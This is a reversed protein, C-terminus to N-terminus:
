QPTLGVHGMVPIDAMVIKEIAEVYPGELKVAEAGAEKVLRGASILAQEPSVQYSMFPLDAVVLAHSVAPVVCSCHYVMTDLTVSLTNAKGQCVTGLSDGVLIIDLEARDVLRAMTYDYATLATLQKKSKCALIKPVTIKTTLMAFDSRKKTFAEYLPSTCAYSEPVIWPITDDM